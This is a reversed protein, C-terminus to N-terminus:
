LHAIMLVALVVKQISLLVMLLLARHMVALIQQLRVQQLRVFWEVQLIRVFQIEVCVRQRIQQLALIKLVRQDIGRPLDLGVSVRVIRQVHVQVIQM